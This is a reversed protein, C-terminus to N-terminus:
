GEWGRAKLAACITTLAEGSAIQDPTVYLVMYGQIQALAAKQADRAYGQPRNHAGRVYQGGQVEIAVNLPAPFVFDYRFKRGPILRVQMDLAPLGAREMAWLLRREPLSEAGHMAKLLAAPLRKSM